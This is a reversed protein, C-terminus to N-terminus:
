RESRLECREFECDIQYNYQLVLQVHKSHWELSRSVHETVVLCYELVCGGWLGHQALFMVADCIM